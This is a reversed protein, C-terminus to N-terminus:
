RTIKCTTANYHTAKPCSQFIIINFYSSKGKNQARQLHSFTSKVPARKHLNVFGAMDVKSNILFRLTSTREGIDEFWIMDAM